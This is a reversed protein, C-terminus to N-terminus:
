KNELLTTNDGGGNKQIKTKTIKSFSVKLKAFGRVGIQKRQSRLSYAKRYESEMNEGYIINIRRCDSLIISDTM